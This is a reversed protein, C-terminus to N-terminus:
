RRPVSLTSFDVPVQAVENRQVWLESVSDDMVVSQRALGSIAADQGSTNSSVVFDFQPKEATYPLPDMGESVMSAWLDQLARAPQAVGAPNTNNYAPQGLPPSSAPKWGREPGSPDALSLCPEGLCRAARAETDSVEKRSAHRLDARMGMIPAMIFRWSVHPGVGFEAADAVQDGPVYKLLDDRRAPGINYRTVEIYSQQAEPVDASAEMNYTIRYRVHPLPVESSEVLLISRTLPDLDADPLHIPEKGDPAGPFIKKSYYRDGTLAGSDVSTYGQAQIFALANADLNEWAQQYPNGAAAQGYLLVFAAAGPFIRRRM